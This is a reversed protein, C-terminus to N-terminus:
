FQQCEELSDVEWMVSTPGSICGINEEFLMKKKRIHTSCGCKSGYVINLGKFIFQFM